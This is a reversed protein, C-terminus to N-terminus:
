RRPKFLWLIFLYAPGPILCLWMYPGKLFNDVASALSETATFLSLLHWAAICGAVYCGMLYFVRVIVTVMYDMRYGLKRNYLGDYVQILAGYALASLFYFIVLWLLHDLKGSAGAGISMITTILLLVCFVWFSYAFTILTDQHNGLFEATDKGQVYKAMPKLNMSAYLIAFICLVGFEEKAVFYFFVAFTSYGLTMLAWVLIIMILEASKKFFGSIVDLGSVLNVAVTNLIKTM